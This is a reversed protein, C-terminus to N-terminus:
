LTFPLVTVSLKAVGASCRTGHFDHPGVGLITFPHGNIRVARGVVGRDDHFHTHWYAYTLVVYPASDPGHEDEPHFVRGLTPKLGLADFYNGSALIVWVSSPNQGTDPGAQMVNYALVSDFTRNRDRLDLYNPHSLQSGTGNGHQLTYLSDARAVNLPQIV